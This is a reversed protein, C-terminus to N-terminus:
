QLSPYLRRLKIRADDAHFRWKVKGSTRSRLWADVLARLSGTDSVRQDLCEISM